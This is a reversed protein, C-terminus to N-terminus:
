LYSGGSFKSSFGSAKNLMEKRQKEGIRMGAGMDKERDFSRKSPDDEAEPDLTKARRNVLSPGRTKEQTANAFMSWEPFRRIDLHRCVVQERIKRAAAEDKTTGSAPKPKSPGVSGAKSVGMMEDALRKQKQEATEYWASSDDDGTNTLKAGKGTNFGRARQKGPDMRAAVDDQKPPMMM